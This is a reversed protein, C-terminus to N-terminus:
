ILPWFTVLLFIAYVILYAWRAFVDLYIDKVRMNGDKNMLMRQICTFHLAHHTVAAAEQQVTKSQRPQQRQTDELSDGTNQPQIYDQEQCADNKSAAGPNTGTLSISDKEETDNGTPTPRLLAAQHSQQPVNQGPLRSGTDDDTAKEKRQVLETDVPGLIDSTAVFLPAGLPSEVPVSPGAELQKMEEELEEEEQKKKAAAAKAKNVVEEFRTLLNVM